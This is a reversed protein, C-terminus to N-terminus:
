LRRKLMYGNKVSFYPKKTQLDLNAVQLSYKYGQLDM